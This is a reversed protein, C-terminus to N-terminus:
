VAETMHAVVHFSSADLRVRVAILLAITQALGRRQASVGLGNSKAVVKARQM